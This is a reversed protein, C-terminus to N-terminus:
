ANNGTAPKHAILYNKQAINELNFTEFDWGLFELGPLSDLHVQVQKMMDHYGKYYRPINGSQRYVRGWVPSTKLNFLRKYADNVVGLIEDESFLSMDGSVHTRSIFLHDSTKEKFLNSYFMSLHLPIKEKRPVAFGAGEQEFSKKNFATYVVALQNYKMESLTNSLDKSIDKTIGSLEKASVTSVVKDFPGYKNSKTHLYYQDNSRTIKSIKVSEHKAGMEKVKDYLKEALLHMGGKISYYGKSFDTNPFEAGWLANHEEQFAIYADKLNGTKKLNKYIGPWASIFELDEAETLFLTRALPSAVYDVFNESTISKISDYFSSGPWVSFKKKQGRLAKIKEPLFLLASFVFGLKSKPVKVFQRDKIIYKKEFAEHNSVLQDKLGIKEILDHLIATETFFGAAGQELLNGEHEETQLLGGRQGYEFLTIDSKNQNELTYYSYSLGTFGAGLVATKM